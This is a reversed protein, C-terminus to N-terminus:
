EQGKPQSSRLEGPKPGEGYDVDPLAAVAATIGGSILRFTAFFVWVLAVVFAAFSVYILFKGLMPASPMVVLAAAYGGTGLIALTVMAGVAQIAKVIDNMLSRGVGNFFYAEM